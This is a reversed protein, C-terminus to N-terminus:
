IHFRGPVSFPKFGELLVRLDAATIMLVTPCV